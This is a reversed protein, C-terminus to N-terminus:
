MLSRQYTIRSDLSQLVSEVYGRILKDDLNQYWNSVNPKDIKFFSAIILLSKVHYCFIITFFFVSVVNASSDRSKIWSM